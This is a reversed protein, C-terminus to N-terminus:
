WLIAAGCSECNFLGANTSKGCKPCVVTPTESESPAAAPGAAATDARRPLGNVAAQAAELTEPDDILEDNASEQTDVTARSGALDWDNITASASTLVGQVGSALGVANEYWRKVESMPRDYYARGRTGTGDPALEVVFSFYNELVNGATVVLRRGALESLYVSALVGPTGVDEGPSSLEERVGVRMIEMVTEIPHVSHFSGVMGLASASGSPEADTVGV